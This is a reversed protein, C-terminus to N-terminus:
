SSLHTAQPLPLEVSTPSTEFWEFTDTREGLHVGRTRSWGTTQVQILAMDLWPSAMTLNTLPTEVTLTIM